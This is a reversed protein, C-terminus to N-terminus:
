QKKKGTHARLGVLTIGAIGFVMLLLWLAPDSSDGTPPLGKSVVFPASAEGDEYVFSIKHTGVTLKEMARSSIEAVTSGSSIKVGDEFRKGDIRLETFYAINGDAVFRQSKGSGKKWVAGSGEIVKYHASWVAYLKTDEGFVAASGPKLETVAAERNRSWGLFEHQPDWAPTEEPLRFYVMKPVSVSQPVTDQRGGNADFSIVAPRDEPSMDWLAYLVV